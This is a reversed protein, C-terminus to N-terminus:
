KSVLVLYDDKKLILKQSLKENTFYNIMNDKAEFEFDNDSRNIVIIYKKNNKERKYSVVGNEAYLLSFDGDIFVEDNRLNGLLRYWELLDIDEKGWPFPVRCYPDRMGEVGAEDGYFVTPIGMVTYQMLSAIKLLKKGNEREDKSLIYKSSLDVNELKKIGLYTLARMTDHTDLITMLKNQIQTPYQDLIMNVVDVFEQTNANKVFNLIANKMPYNTVGDLYDGLFYNKRENYSIKCSADEWVEGVIYANKNKQRARKCIALLFKNSLEDVVDLRFGLLGLSMYKDIVGGKGSIFDFFSSEERTQPLTNVGWWASYKDPFEYFEYWPFYRSNKSQYAGLSKYRNLKNFYISDSGTHNFVGDIIININKEKAKSILEKFKEEGGFMSDVKLYNAVDYKHSSNAEFVPSLYITKVNLSALYDLKNIIGQFNGGYCNFNCQENNQNFEKDVPVTWDSILNLGKRAIVRGSKNFRDVFIHYIIGQEINKNNATEKQIVLQLYNSEICDYCCDFNSGKGLKFYGNKTDVEFHYWYFGVENFLFEFQAHVYREDVYEISMDFKKDEKGDKHLVFYATKFGLFKSIQLKYTVSDGKKCVGKHTKSTLPNFIFNKM